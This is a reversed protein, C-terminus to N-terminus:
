PRLEERLRAAMRNKSAESLQRHSGGEVEAPLLPAARHLFKLQKAYRECWICILYHLRMKLRIRLTPARDFSLSTLRSM